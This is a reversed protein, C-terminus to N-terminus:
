AERAAIGGGEEHSSVASQCGPGPADSAAERSNSNTGAAAGPNTEICVIAVYLVTKLM